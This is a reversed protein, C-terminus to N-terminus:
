VPRGALDAIVESLEAPDVPKSLHFTFGAALARIRDESRGYATLAIAPTNARPGSRRLTRLFTYGDEEPMEIDLVLVHPDWSELIDRAAAASSCTRTEAGSSTVVLNTIELSDPDDDLLLVRVGRLSPLFPHVGVEEGATPHRWGDPSGHLLPAPLKVTFTSGGDVGASHGTV